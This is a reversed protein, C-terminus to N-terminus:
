RTAYVSTRGDRTFTLVQYPPGSPGDMGPSRAPMGPVTIGAVGAPRERLLRQILDAPVHGEVVLGNIVGTHCAELNETIGYRAKVPALDV